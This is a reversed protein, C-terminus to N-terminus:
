KTFRIHCCIEREKLQRELDKIRIDKSSDNSTNNNKVDITDELKILKHRCYEERARTRKLDKKCKLLNEEEIKRGEKCKSLNDKELLLLTKLSNCKQEANKGALVTRRYNGELDVAVKSTVKPIRLNEAGKPFCFKENLYNTLNREGTESKTKKLTKRKSVLREISKKYSKDIPLIDSENNTKLFEILKEEGNESLYDFVNKNSISSM